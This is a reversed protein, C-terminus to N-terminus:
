FKVEGMLKQIEEFQINIKSVMTRNNSIRINLEDELDKKTKDFNMIEKMLKKKFLALIYLIYIVKLM